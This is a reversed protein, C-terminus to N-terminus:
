AGVAARGDRNEKARRILLRFCNRINQESYLTFEDRYYETFLDDVIEEDNKKEAIIRHYLRLTAEYSDHLARKADGGRIPGQHGPGLIDPALSKMSEMTALYDSFGTFFLPLFCRGPYHFGLSDSVILANAGPIHVMINGPSHGKVMSCRLTVGGLDIERSDEVVIPNEPFSLTQIPPRGPRIGKEPLMNSIFRDEDRMVRLAKPHRIFDEAGRGAVVRADPFRERLGQLGTLHDTHPHTAVLYAPSANLSDLQGIVADVSASVGMEILASAHDGKILYLNFFYNGLVWARETLAMPFHESTKMSGNM